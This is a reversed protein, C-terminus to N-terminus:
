FSSPIPQSSLIATFFVLDSTGDGDLDEACAARVFDFDLDEKETDHHPPLLAFTRDGSEFLFIRQPTEPDTGFYDYFVAIDAKGNGNFDGGLAYKVATFNFETRVTEFYPVPDLRFRHRQIGPCRNEPCRIGPRQVAPRHRGGDRNFDGAVAFDVHEFNLSSELDQYWTGLPLLGTPENRFVVVSSCTFAPNMNPSFTMKGLLAVEKGGNGTFDGTVGPEPLFEPLQDRLAVFSLTQEWGEGSPGLSVFRTENDQTEVVLLSEEQSFCSLGPLLFTFLLISRNLLM